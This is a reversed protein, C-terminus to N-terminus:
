RCPRMFCLTPFARLVAATVSWILCCGVCKLFWQELEVSVKNGRSTSHPAALWEEKLEQWSEFDMVELTDQLANGVCLQTSFLHSFDKRELSLVQLGGGRDARDQDQVVEGHKQKQKQKQKQRQVAMAAILALISGDSLDIISGATQQTGAETSLLTEVLAQIGVEWVHMRRSDNLMQLRESNHLIHWGCECLQPPFYADNPLILPSVVEYGTLKRKKIPKLELWMHVGDHASTLEFEDGESCAHDVPLPFIVQQWHDQWNQAGPQTSYSVTRDPDLEPSLLDVTWWLLIGSISGAKTVSITQQFCSESPNHRHFFEFNMMETPASLCHSLPCLPDKCSSLPCAQEPWHVPIMKSGGGCSSHSNSHASSSSDGSGSGSSDLTDLATLRWPRAGGLHGELGQVRCMDRIQSGSVATAYVRGRCLLVGLVDSGNCVHVSM